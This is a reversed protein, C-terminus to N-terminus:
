AAVVGVTLQSRDLTSCAQQPSDVFMAATDDPAYVRLGRVDTAACQGPDFVGANVITLPAKANRGPDITVVSGKSKEERTAPVGVQQGSEGAVFSVGPSGQLVCSEASKNTFQLNVRNQSMGAGDGAVIAPTLDSAKCVKPGARVATNPENAQAAPVQAAISSPSSTAAGVPAPAAVTRPAPNGGCASLMSVAGLAAAAVLGHRITKVTKDLTAM